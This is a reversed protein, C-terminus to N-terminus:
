AIFGDVGHRALAGDKTPSAALSFSVIKNEKRESQAGDGNDDDRELEGLEARARGSPDNSM